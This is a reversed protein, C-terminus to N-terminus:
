TQKRHSSAVLDRCPQRRAGETALSTPRLRAQEILQLVPQGIPGERGSMREVPAVGIQLRVEIDLGALYRERGADHHTCYVIRDRHDRAPRSRGFSSRCEFPHGEPDLHQRRARRRISVRRWGRRVCRSRWLPFRRRDLGQLIAYQRDLLVPRVSRRISVLKTLQHFVLKVPRYPAVEHIPNPLLNCGLPHVRPTSPALGRLLFDSFFDSVFNATKKPDAFKRIICFWEM